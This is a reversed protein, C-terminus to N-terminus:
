LATVHGFLETPVTAINPSSLQLNMTGPLRLLNKKKEKTDLGARSGWGVEYELFMKPEKVSILAPPTYPEGSVDM